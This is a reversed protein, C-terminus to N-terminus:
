ENGNVGMREWENGNAGMREWKSGLARATCVDRQIQTLTELEEQTWEIVVVTRNQM